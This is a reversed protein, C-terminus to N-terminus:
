INTIISVDPHIGPVTFTMMNPDEKPVHRFFEKGEKYWKVTYLPENELDFDCRLRLADNLRVAQPVTAKVNKLLEVDLVFM